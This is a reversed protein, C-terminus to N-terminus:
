RGLFMQRYIQEGLIIDLPETIKLNYSSGSLVKIETGKYYYIMGADETFVRGDQESM